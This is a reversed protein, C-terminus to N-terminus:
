PAVLSNYWTPITNDTLHKNLPWYIPWVDSVDPLLVSAKRAALHCKSCSNPMYGFLDYKIPATSSTAVAQFYGYQGSQFSAGSRSLANSQWPFIIDFVHSGQDGEVITKNGAADVGTTYGGSKAIKPMHCSTCRGTPMAENTPQYLANSMGAKDAMHKSVAAAVVYYSADLDDGTPAYATGNKKATGGASVMTNAVDAKGVSAFPGPAEAHCSLCQVNSTYATAPSTTPASFTFADGSKATAAPASATAGHPGHCSTCTLKQVQNHTMASYSLMTYQQRHQQGYLKGGTQAPNWFAEDDDFRDLFHGLFGGVGNADPFLDYVGPVFNGGGLKNVYDSNWPGSDGGAEFPKAKGGDDYTHCKGCMQREAEATLYAPNIIKNGKGGGASAHDSGPGHCHECSINEELFNYTTVATYSQTKDAATCAGNECDRGFPLNTVTTPTGDFQAGTVHCGACAHSFTRSRSTWSEGPFKQETPHYGNMKFAGNVMDGSELIQIPLVLSDYARGGIMGTPPTTYTWDKAAKIDDLRGLGRQKAVGVNPRPGADTKDGIGGYLVDVHVMPVAPNPNSTADYFTGDACTYPKGGFKQVYEDNAFGASGNLNCWYVNVQGDAYKTTGGAACTTGAAANGYICPDNADYNPNTAKVGPWAPAAIDNIDVPLQKTLGTRSLRVVSYAVGSEATKGPALTANAALTLQTDSGISAVTGIPTWSLGVPTYGIVDGVQLACATGSAIPAVCPTGGSFSTGTGTIATSGAAAALTGALPIMVTRPVALNKNLMKSWAGAVANGNVDRQIRMLSRNHASGMVSTAKDAHCKDCAIAGNQSTMGVYTAADTPRASMVLAVSASGEPPVIVAIRTETDLFNTNPAKASLYVPGPPVNTLTFAGKADTTAFLTAEKGQVAVVVGAIPGAAVAPTKTSDAKSDTVVGTITGPASSDIALSLTVNTTIGGAVGVGALTADAFGAKSAVVNYSGVPVTSLQFVGNADTTATASAPMTVVAVGPMGAGMSDKVKGSITGTQQATM